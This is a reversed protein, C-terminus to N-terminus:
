AAGSAPARLAGHEVLALLRSDWQEPTEALMGNEGDRIAYRFPETPSAITAVGAVAAEFWKLESKAHCFREDLELPALNVDVGSLLAPLDRWPVVPRRHIRESFPGLAPPLELPGVVELRVAPRKVLVNAIASAIAGFDLSHTRTGSFYGLRVTGAPRRALRAIESIDILEQSLANRHVFSTKGLAAAPHGLLRLEGLLHSGRYRFPGNEVGTVILVSRPLPTGQPDTM